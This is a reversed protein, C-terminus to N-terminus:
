RGSQLTAELEELRRNLDIWRSQEEAVESAYAAEEATVRQLDASVRAVEQQHHRRIEALQEPSPRDGHPGSVAPADREVAEMIKIQQQVDEQRRQLSHLQERAANLRSIATNLRQEQMQLRGLALQVRPGAATMKELAARLGRVEALLAPLMDDNNGRAPAQAYLAAALSACLVLTGLAIQARRSM